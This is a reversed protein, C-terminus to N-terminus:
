EDFGFKLEVWGWGEKWDIYEDYEEKSSNIVLDELWNFLERDEDNLKEKIRKLEDEVCKSYKYCKIDSNNIRWKLEYGDNGWNELYYCISTIDFKEKAEKLLSQLMKINRQYLEKIKTGNTAIESILDIRM